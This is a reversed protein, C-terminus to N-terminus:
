VSRRPQQIKRPGADTWNLKPDEGFTAIVQDKVEAWETASFSDFVICAWSYKATRTLSEFDSNLNSLETQLGKEKDRDTVKSLEDEVQRKRAKLKEEDSFDERSYAAGWDAIQPNGNADLFINDEKFDGHVYGASEMNRLTELIVAANAVKKEKSLKALGPRNPIDLKGNADKVQPTKYSGHALPMVFGEEGNNLNVMRKSAFITDGFMEKMKLSTEHETQLVKSDSQVKAKAIAVPISRNFSKLKIGIEVDKFAGSGLHAGEAFRVYLFGPQFINRRPTKLVTVKGLGALELEVSGNKRLESRKGKLAEKALEGITASEQKLKDVQSGSGGSPQAQEQVKAPASEALKPTDELKVKKFLGSLRDSLSRSRKRSTQETAVNSAPATTKDHPSEAELASKSTPPAPASSLFKPLEVYHSTSPNTPPAITKELTSEPELATKNTPPAITQELPSPDSQVYQYNSGYEGGSDYQYDTADPYFDPTPAKAEGFPSYGQDYQYDTSDPYFDQAPFNVKPLQVYHGDSVNHFMQGENNTHVGAKQATMETTAPSEKRPPLAVYQSTQVTNSAVYANNSLNDRSVLGM